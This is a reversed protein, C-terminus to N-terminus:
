RLMQRIESLIKDICQQIIEGDFELDELDYGDIASCNELEEKLMEAFKEATEKRAEAVCEGITKEYANYGAKWITDYTSKNIIEKDVKEYEERLLVVSYKPLKRYGKEYFERAINNIDVEDLVECVDKTDGELDVLWTNGIVKAMEEIQKEKDKM